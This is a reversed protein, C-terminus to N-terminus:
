SNKRKKRKERERKEKEEREELEEVERVVCCAAASVFWAPASVLEGLLGGRM